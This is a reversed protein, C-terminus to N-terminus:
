CPIKNGNQLMYEELKLVTCNLEEAGAQLSIRGKEVLNAITRYQGQEIGREIGQEIWADLLNCTMVNEGKEIRDELIDQYIDAYRNDGTFVSFLEMVEKVHRILTDDRLTDMQANIRKAKFFRAVVKFDSTFREIVEDELYAIDFVKIHYDEVYQKLEEPVKILEHLSKSCSWRQMSFNLVITIVPAVKEGNKIQAQYGAFDYGMVRVPMTNDLTAQNEIGLMSLKLVMDKYVKVMDRRQEALVGRATKYVSETGGPCLREEELFESQFLLTNYIDAFVDNYDELIKEARDKSGM